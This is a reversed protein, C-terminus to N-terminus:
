FKARWGYTKRRWERQKRNLHLRNRTQYAKAMAACCDRCQGRLGDARHKDRSFCSPHRLNGCRTCHRLENSM